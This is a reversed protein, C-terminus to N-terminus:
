GPLKLRSAEVTFSELEGFGDTQPGFGVLRPNNTGWVYLRFFHTGEMVYCAINIFLRFFGWKTAAFAM